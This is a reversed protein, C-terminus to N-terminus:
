ATLPRHRAAVVSLGPCRCDATRRSDDFVIKVPVRQVVKVYNGTANEAPLSSFVAGTGSQFSDVKADFDADPCADVECECTSARRCSRWSPKRSTPRSGSTDPCWPSCRSAPISTTAWTWRASRSGGTRRRSVTTYCLQLEANAVAVDAAQVNADAAEVQAKQAEIQARAGQM